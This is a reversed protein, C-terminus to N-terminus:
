CSSPLLPLSVGVSRSSYSAIIRTPFKTAMRCAFARLSKVSPMGGSPRAPAFRAGEARNIHRSAVRDLAIGTVVLRNLEAASSRYAISLLTAITAIAVFSRIMGPKSMIRQKQSNNTEEKHVLRPAQNKMSICLSKPSWTEPDQSFPKSFGKSHM